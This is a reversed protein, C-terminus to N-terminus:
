FKVELGCKKIVDAAIEAGTRTDKPKNELLDIYKITLASGGAYKATNETLVRLCEATYVRYIYSEIDKKLLSPLAAMVARVGLGKLQLLSLIVRDCGGAAM